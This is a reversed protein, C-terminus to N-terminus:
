FKRPARVNEWNPDEEVVNKPVSFKPDQFNFM